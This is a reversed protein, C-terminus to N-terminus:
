SVHTAAAGRVWVDDDDDEIAEAALDAKIKELNKTISGVMGPERIGPTQTHLLLPGHEYEAYRQKLSSAIRIEPIGRVNCLTSEAM